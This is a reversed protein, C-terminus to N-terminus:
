RRSSSSRTGATPTSSWDRRRHQHRRLGAPAIVGYSMGTVWGPDATCWFVDDDHLDLAYRATVAQAVVSEHVLMAGKPRGTTGSTFHM